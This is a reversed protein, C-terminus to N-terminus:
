YDVRYGHEILWEWPPGDWGFRKFDVRGDPGFEVGEEALRARHRESALPNERPSIKGQANIVRQWPVDTDEPLGAMTYGVMRPTCDGVMYAIQGYSTVKGYPIQRVLQRIREYLPRDLPQEISSGGM